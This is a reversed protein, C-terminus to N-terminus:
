NAMRWINNKQASTLPTTIKACNLSPPSKAPITKRASNSPPSNATAGRVYSGKKRIVGSARSAQCTDCLLWDCQRIQITKDNKESIGCDHCKIPLGM